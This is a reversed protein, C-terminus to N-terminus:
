LEGPLASSSTAPPSPELSLPPAASLSPAAHLLSKGRQAHRTRLRTSIQPFPQVGAPPDRSGWEAKQGKCRPGTFGGLAPQPEGPVRLSGVVDDLLVSSSAVRSRGPPSALPAWQTSLSQGLGSPRGAKSPSAAKYLPSGKPRFTYLVAKLCCTAAQSCAWVREVGM